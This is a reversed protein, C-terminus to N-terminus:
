RDEALPEGGDVGANRVGEGGRAGDNADIREVVPDDWSGTIRYHSSSMAKLPKKFIESFLFLAAGVAPGGAIAGAVPLTSGFNAYVVATQDYDRVVIGTRGVIGVDAAPGELVLNNTYASGGDLTFDGRIEDFALGKEFVDRFDLALRRPLAAVSLLGFMRGAGPQVSELQGKGVRLGVSGTLQERFRPGPPGAWSVSAVVEGESAAVSAGFALSQLTEKVDTSRLTFDLQSRHAFGTYLWNGTGEITFSPATAALRTVGIGGAVRTLELDLKGFRMDGYAFDAVEVRMPMLERPDAAGDDADGGSALHLAELKAVIPAGARADLPVFLAGRLDPGALRVLWESPARDVEARVSAFRQGFAHLEDIRLDLFSLLPPGAAADLEFDLWAGLDFAPVHGRVALGADQELVPAGGGLAVAGRTLRWHGGDRGAEVIARADAGLAADVVVKSAEPFRARVDLPLTADAAKAVPAPARIETGILDSRVTIELNRADQPLRVQARYVSSGELLRGLRADLGAGLDIADFRGELDLVTAAISGDDARVPAVSVGVPRGIFLASIDEGALGVDSYSLTGEVREFRQPLGAMGVTAGDLHMSARVRTGDLRRVPLSFDVDLASPGSGELGRELLPARAALGSARLFGLVATADGTSHGTYEIVGERLDAISVLAPAVRNEGVKASRVQGSLSANHFEVVGEISEAPPWGDWYDLTVGDFQVRARFEGEGEDFPFASVPGAFSATASVVRGDVLARDLWAAVRPPLRQSPMYRRAGAINADELALQLDLLPSAGDAPLMLELQARSRLDATAVLLEESLVRWGDPQRRWGLAGRVEAGPLPAPFIDPWTAVLQSSALELRGAEADMRVDGTLGAVGPRGDVPEFALNTFHARLLPAGADTRGYEFDEIEGRPSLALVRRRLDGDPLWALLPRLDELRVYDAQAAVVGGGEALQVSFGGRPWPQGRRGLRVDEGHLRWGGEVANWGFRGAVGDYLYAVGAADRVDLRDADLVLSAEEFRRGDLSAWLQLDATGGTLRDRLAPVLRTVLGLDFGTGHLEAEWRDSDGPATRLVLELHGDRQEPLDLAGNLRLADAGRELELQVDALRLPPGGGDDIIVTADRLELRGRPLVSSGGAGSVARLERGLVRWDGDPTREVSIEAGRLMLSSVRVQGRALDMLSLRVAGGDAHLVRESRDATWLDADYFELQPGALKWRLDYSGLTVPVDLAASAWAELQAQYQPLLPVLLRFLGTALGLLLVAAAFTGATWRWVGRWASM